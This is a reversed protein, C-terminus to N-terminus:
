HTVISLVQTDYGEGRFIIEDRSEPVLHFQIIL